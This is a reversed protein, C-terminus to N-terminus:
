IDDIFFNNVIVMDCSSISFYINYFYIKILGINVFSVSIFYVLM